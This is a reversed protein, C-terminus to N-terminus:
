FVDGDFEVPICSIEVDFLSGDIRKHRTEFVPPLTKADLIMELIQDETFQGDWEWIQLQLMEEPSYGLMNAFSRNSEYVKGNRDCIVIGDRSQEFVTRRRLVEKALATEARKRETIDLLATRIGTTEGTTNCVLIEHVEAWM